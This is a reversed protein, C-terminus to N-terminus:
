PWNASSKSPTVWATAQQDLFSGTGAACMTNMAFDVIILHGDEEAVVIM